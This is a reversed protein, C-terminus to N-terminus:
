KPCDKSKVFGAAKAEEETCFWRDGERPNITIKDYNFCSPLHYIKTGKDKRVNGKIVCGEKPACLSSWIGRKAKKAERERERLLASYKLDEGRVRALGEEVLIRNVLEGGVFVFGVSRGFNDKSIEEVEVKRGLVLEELREKARVGLCGKPYEPADIGALRVRRKELDLTDGDVVRVVSGGMRGRERRRWVGAKEGLLLLNLILSLGLVIKLGKEMKGGGGGPHALYVGFTVKYSRSLRQFVSRGKEEKSEADEVGTREVDGEVEM